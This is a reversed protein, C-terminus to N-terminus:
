KKPSDGTPVEGPPLDDKPAEGKPKAAIAKGTKNVTVKYNVGADHIKKVADEVAFAGPDKVKFTALKQEKSVKVSDKEVGPLSQLADRM